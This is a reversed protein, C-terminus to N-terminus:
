VRNMQNKERKREVWVSELVNEALDRLSEFPKLKKELDFWPLFIKEWSKLTKAIKPKKKFDEFNRANQM